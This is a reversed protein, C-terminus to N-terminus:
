SEGSARPSVSESQEVESSENPEHPLGYRERRIRELVRNVYVFFSTLLQASVQVLQEWVGLSSIELGPRAGRTPGDSLAVIVEAGRARATSAADRHLRLNGEVDGLRPAIQALGIRVDRL